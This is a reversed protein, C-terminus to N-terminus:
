TRTHTIKELHSYGCRFCVWNIGKGQMGQAMVNNCHPCIAFDGNWMKAKKLKPTHKM